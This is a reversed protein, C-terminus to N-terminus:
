TEVEFCIMSIFPIFYVLVQEKKLKLLDAKYARLNQARKQADNLPTKPASLRRLLAEKNRKDLSEKGNKLKQKKPKKADSDITHSVDEANTDDVKVITQVQMHSDYDMAPDYGFSADDYGREPILQDPEYFLKTESKRGSTKQISYPLEVDIDIATRNEPGLNDQSNSRVPIMFSEDAVGHLNKDVQTPSRYRAEAVPDLSSRRDMQRGQGYVMFDDSTRSRYAGGGAEIEKMEGNMYSREEGSMVLEDNSM